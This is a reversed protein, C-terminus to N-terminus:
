SVDPRKTFPDGISEITKVDEDVISTHYSARVEGNLISILHLKAGILEPV